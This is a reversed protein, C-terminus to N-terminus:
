CRGGVKKGCANINAGATLLAKLVRTDFRSGVLSSTFNKKKLIVKESLQSTGSSVVLSRRAALKKQKSDGKKLDNPPAV